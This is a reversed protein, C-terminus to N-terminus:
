SHLFYTSFSSLCFLCSPSSSSCHASGCIALCYLLPPCGLLWCSSCGAKHTQKIFLIVVYTMHENTWAWCIFGSTVHLSNGQCTVERLRKGQPYLPDTVTIPSHTTNKLPEIWLAKWFYSHALKLAWISPSSSSFLLCSGSTQKMSTGLIAKGRGLLYCNLICLSQSASTLKQGHFPCFM